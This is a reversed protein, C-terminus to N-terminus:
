TGKSVASPKLAWLGVSFTVEKVAGHKQFTFRLVVHIPNTTQWVPNSPMGGMQSPIHAFYYKSFKEPTNTSYQKKRAISICVISICRSSRGSLPTSYQKYQIMSYIGCEGTYPVTNSESSVM